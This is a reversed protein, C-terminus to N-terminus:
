VVDAAAWKLPFYFPHWPRNLQREYEAMRKVQEALRREDQEFRDLLGNLEDRLTQPLSAILTARQINM